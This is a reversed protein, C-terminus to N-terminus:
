GSLSQSGEFLIFIENYFHQKIRQFFLIFVGEYIFDQVYKVANTTNM